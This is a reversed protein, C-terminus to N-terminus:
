SIIFLAVLFSPTRVALLFSFLLVWLYEGLGVSLSSWLVKKTAPESKLPPNFEGVQRGNSNRERVAHGVRLGGSRESHM